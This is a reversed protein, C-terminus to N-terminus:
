KELNVDLNVMEISPGISNDHQYFIPIGLTPNTQCVSVKYAGHISDQNQVLTTRYAQYLTTHM